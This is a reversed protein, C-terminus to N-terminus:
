KIKDRVMSVKWFWPEQYIIKIEKGSILRDRIKIAHPTDFWKKMHIFVRNYKEGKGNSKPIIDIRTIFGIKLEKFIDFIQKRDIHTFVRPICISPFHPPNQEVLPECEKGIQNELIEEQINLLNTDTQNM